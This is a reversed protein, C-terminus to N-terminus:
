RKSWEKMMADAYEAALRAVTNTKYEDDVDDYRSYQPVLGRLAAAAFRNWADNRAEDRDKLLM